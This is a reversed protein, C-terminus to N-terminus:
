RMTSGFRGAGQAFLWIALDERLVAPELGCEALGDVREWWFEFRPERSEPSAPFPLTPASGEFLLNVEHTTTDGRSYQHEVVGLFRRVDFRAGLEEDIERVLATVAAEGPEIHGGPLFVYSGGVRRTLLVHGERQIVARAIVEIAATM